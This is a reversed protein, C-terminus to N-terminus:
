EASWLLLLENKNKIALFDKLEKSNLVLFRVKRKIMKEAKATLSTLYNRDLESGVFWLDIVRSNKGKALDGALYVADLKGLQHVVKEIIKDIGVHKLHLKHIEPFLPHNTNAQYVKKNGLTKSYM